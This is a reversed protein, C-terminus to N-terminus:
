VLTAFALPISLFVSAINGLMLFFVLGEAALLSRSLKRSLVM